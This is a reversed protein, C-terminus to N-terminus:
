RLFGLDGQNKEGKRSHKIEGLCALHMTLRVNHNTKLSRLTCSKNLLNLNVIEYISGQVMINQDFLITHVCHHNWVSTFNDTNFALFCGIFNVNSGSLSWTNFSGLCKNPHVHTNHIYGFQLYHREIYM